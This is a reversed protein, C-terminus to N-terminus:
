KNEYNYPEYRTYYHNVNSNWLSLYKGTKSKTIWFEPSNHNIYEVPHLNKIYSSKSWWFNGSYHVEPHQHLNVGVVDYEKLNNICINHKIINFYKLYKVWDTININSGNYSVGKVHLYLANFDETYSDKLLINLTSNEYLRLDTSMGIILIKPDCFYEIDNLDPTLINCRIQNVYEYLGSKKIDDLMSNYIEKWNNICCVHIYIYTKM